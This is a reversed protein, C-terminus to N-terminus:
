LCAAVFDWRGAMLGPIIEGYPVVIGELKPVGLKEMVAKTVTPGLGALTGDPLMESFPPQAAIAVKAVKDKRLRELLGNGTQAVTPRMTIVGASSATALAGLVNRRSWARM